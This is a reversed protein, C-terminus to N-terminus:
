PRHEVAAPPASDILRAQGLRVVIQAPSVQVVQVRAPHRVQAPALRGTVRGPREERRLDLVPVLEGRSVQWIDGHTGSIMVNVTPAANDALALGPRLRVEVPVDEVV